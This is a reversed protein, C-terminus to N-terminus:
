FEIKIIQKKNSGAFNLQIAYLHDSLLKTHLATLKKRDVLVRKPKVPSIVTAVTQHNLFSSCRVKLVKGHEDYQVSHLASNISQLYPSKVNGFLIDVTNGRESGDPLVLSPLNKGDVSCSQLYKGKGNLVVMKEKGFAFSYHVSGSSSPLPGSFSINWENENVGFLHYLTYLYFGGAWLFSPKDIKGFEQSTTDSFRYEYMAPIGMPSHVIGDLTMTTKVFHLADDVRGINKLALAYWANDHPWVGGNIYYYPQGAEDGAFKFFSISEATHFDPPTVTRVGISADVLQQSATAVLEDSKEVDLIGFAPALLSGMYYHTDKQNGNWNMLYKSHEDWLTHQLAAQMSDALLEYTVLKNSNKKLVSSMFLYDRLARITLITIYSRPGEKHGIDWWDPRFAYMLNDTKKQKLIETLSKTVLPYLIRATTDDFSHRVYSASLLIFWLHNWNDPTCFETKLGDDRWYYAHPIIEDKALSAIYLLNEKVRPLDFNVAGLNTMLVDHTFFFNYEAPCPMPVISGNIYHANTALIARAWMSSRDLWEDGTFFSAEGMAKQRVFNNNATVESRWSTALRHIKEKAEAKRSSGIIQIIELSDNPHLIKGYVFAAIPIGKNPSVFTRRQLGASSSLWNSTGSDTASLEETSTTWQSPSVGVNQVFCAAYQTESDDFYAFITKTLEDYETYASDKRAYTQCTRLTLKLHTYVSVTDVATSVNKIKLSFVMAPETFCFEYEMSYQLGDEQRTFKVKHPSVTYNWPEKGFWHKSSENIKIGALMPLSKERKWYDTSLDISNAVPYYFSIRSPLP